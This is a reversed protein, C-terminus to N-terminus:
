LFLINITGQSLFTIKRPTRQVDSPRSYWALKLIAEPFERKTEPSWLNAIEPFVWETVTYKIM